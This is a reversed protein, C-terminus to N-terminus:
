GCLVAVLVCLFEPSKCNQARHEACFWVLLYALNCFIASYKPIPFILVFPLFAHL